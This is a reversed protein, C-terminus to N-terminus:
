PRVVAKYGTGFDVLEVSKDGAKKRVLGGDDGGAYLKPVEPSWVWEEEARRGSMDEFVVKVEVASISRTGVTLTKPEKARAREAMAPTTDEVFQKLPQEHVASAAGNKPIERYLAKTITGDPAILRASAKRTEEESVIEIWVHDGEVGAVGMTIEYSGDVRYRAWEGPELEAVGGYEHFDVSAPVDMRTKKMDEPTDGTSSSPGSSFLFCGAMFPAIGLGIWARMRRGNYWKVNMVCHTM